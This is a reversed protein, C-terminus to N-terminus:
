SDESDKNYAYQVTGKRVDGPLVVGFGCVSPRNRASGHYTTLPGFYAPPYPKTWTGVTAIVVSVTGAPPAALKRLEM